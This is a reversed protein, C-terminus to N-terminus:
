PLPPITEVHGSMHMPKPGPVQLQWGFPDNGRSNQRYGESEWLRYGHQEVVSRLVEIATFPSHWAATM